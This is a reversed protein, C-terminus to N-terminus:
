LYVDVFRKPALPDFKSEYLLAYKENCIFRPTSRFSVFSSRTFDEYLDIKYSKSFIVQKYQSDFDKDNDCYTNDFNTLNAGINLPSLKTMYHLYKFRVKKM